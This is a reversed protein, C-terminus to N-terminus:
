KSIFNESLRLTKLKKLYKFDDSSLVHFENKSLDLEELETQEQLNPM